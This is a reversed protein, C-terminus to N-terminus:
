LRRSLEPHLAIPMGGQANALWFPCAIMFRSSLLIAITVPAEFPIPAPIAFDKPASPV